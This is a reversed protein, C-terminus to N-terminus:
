RGVVTFQVANYSNAGHCKYLAGHLANWVFRNGPKM